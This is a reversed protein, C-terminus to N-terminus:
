GYCGPENKMSGGSGHRGGGRQGSVGFGAGGEAHEARDAGGVQDVVHHLRQDQRDVRDQLAVEV